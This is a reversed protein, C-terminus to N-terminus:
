KKRRTVVEIFDDFKWSRSNFTDLTLVRYARIATRRLRLYLRCCVVVALMAVSKQCAYIFTFMTCGGWIYLRAFRVAGM